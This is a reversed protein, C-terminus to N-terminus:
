AIYDCFFLPLTASLAIREEGTSEAKPDTNPDFFFRWFAADSSSSMFAFFSKIENSILFKKTSVAPSSGTVEQTHLYSARRFANHQLVKRRKQTSEARHFTWHTRGISSPRKRTQTVTQTLGRPPAFIPSSYAFISPLSFLIGNAQEKPLPM